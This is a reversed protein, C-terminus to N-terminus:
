TANIKRTLNRKVICSPFVIESWYLGPYDHGPPHRFLRSEFRLHEHQRCTHLAPCRPADPAGHPGANPAPPPGGGLARTATAMLILAQRRIRAM